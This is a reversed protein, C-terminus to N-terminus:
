VVDPVIDDTAQVAAALAALAADVEPTTSGANDLATQLDALKTTVEAKAKEAQTALATLQAALQAQTAMIYKLRENISKLDPSDLWLNVTFFAV